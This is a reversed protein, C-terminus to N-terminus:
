IKSEPLISGDRGQIFLQKLKEVSHRNTFEGFSEIPNLRQLKYLKVMRQLLSPLEAFTVSEYLQCGFKQNGNRVYVDYGPVPETDTDIKVGLLTIDGPHNQACSKPCSSLHINIPSDIELKGALFLAHGKTDTTAAACGQTGICAVLASRINTPSTDLGLSTIKRIVETVSTQSIDPLLLNQWPTLRLTGSGFQEALDAFTHLQRSELRGLPLVIGIYSLGPQSQPHIGVPLLSKPEDPKPEHTHCLAFALRQEVEGLYNAYGFSNIVERLRSQRGTISVRALYVDALAALVPLCQWARLLIGTDSPPTGKAGVSLYLRFYVESGVSVAALTIDNPRDRVAVAGGGDFCVSFKAPLGSWAPHQIIYQNWAQIYPRTDIIEQPDIGATPSTMINRIHDVAPNPAALGIDQLRKLDAHTLQHHSQRLQLNARNTVDVCGGGFRDAIDAIARCQEQHLIGGPIRLRYLTGDKASTPYFLGPCATFGSLM